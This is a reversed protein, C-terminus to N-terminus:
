IICFSISILIILSFIFIFNKTHQTKPPGAIIAKPKVDSKVMMKLGFIANKYVPEMELTFGIYSDTLYSM